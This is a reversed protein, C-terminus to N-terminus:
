EVEIHKHIKHLVHHLVHVHLRQVGVSNVEGPDPHPIEVVPGTVVPLRQHETGDLVGLNAVNEGFVTGVVSSLNAIVSM